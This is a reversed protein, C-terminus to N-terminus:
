FLIFYIYRFFLINWIIGFIFISSIGFFWTDLFVSCWPKPKPKPKPVPLMFGVGLWICEISAKQISIVSGLACDEWVHVWMWTAMLYCTLCISYVFLYSTSCVRFAPGNEASNMVSWSAMFTFLFLRRLIIVTQPVEVFSLLNKVWSPSEEVKKKLRSKLNIKTRKRNRFSAM